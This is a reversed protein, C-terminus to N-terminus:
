YLLPTISKKTIELDMEDDSSGEPGTPTVTDQRVIEALEADTLEATTPINDDVSVYEDLIADATDEPLLSDLREVMTEYEPDEIQMDGCEIDGRMDHTFGCHQFCHAITAPTVDDWAEKLLLIADLVTTRLQTGDDVAKIFQMLLKMRYKHKMAQIIGQDCPQTHSTTNPPLYVVEVNTLNSVAPHAPCNDMILLIHRGQVRMRIDLARVWGTWLEGTIWAKANAKYPLPINEIGRFCRPHTAKGIIMPKLKHTGSMNTAVLVTLREKSEKRNRSANEGKLTYTKNPLCKYFLGTEDANYVDDASYRSLLSPLQKDRWESTMEPTVSAAEGCITKFILSRRIKFWYLWGSNAKFDDIQLEKVLSDAKAMLIPGSIPTGMSRAQKIWLFVAKDLDEHAPRRLKKRKSHFKQSEEASILQIKNKLFTSLTSPALDFKKCVDKKHKGSEVEEIVKLKFELTFSKRSKAAAM